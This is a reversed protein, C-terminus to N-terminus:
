GALGIRIPKYGAALIEESWGFNELYWKVTIALGKDFPMTAQWGLEKRAKADSVAYRRDHGPRDRVLQILRSHPSNTPSLRDLLQCLLELVARNQRENRGAFNYAEGVRGRELALVIGEVLDEVFLWDRVHSGDGYLPMPANRLASYIMHPIFKEPYQRPGYANTSRVIMTPMGYTAGFAAVLHDGSAKTASYPSNPAFRSEETFEGQEISGFVEDTSMQVFRFRAPKQRRWYELCEQLLTSLAVVNSYIFPQANDISRDVHTEAALNVVLTPACSRLLGRVSEQDGIDGRVFRYQSADRFPLSAGASAYTLADFNLVKAGRNVLATVLHSGIFGAGGTVLVSVNSLSGFM